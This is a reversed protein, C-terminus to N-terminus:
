ENSVSKREKYENTNLNKKVFFFNYILMLISCYSLTIGVQAEKESIQNELNEIQM